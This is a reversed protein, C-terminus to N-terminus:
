VNRGDDVPVEYFPKKEKQFLPIKKMRTDTFSIVETKRIAQETFLSVPRKKLKGILLAVRKVQKETIKGTISISCKVNNRQKYHIEYYNHYLRRKSSSWSKKSRKKRKM